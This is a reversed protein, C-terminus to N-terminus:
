YLPKVKKLLEFLHEYGVLLDKCIPDEKVASEFIRIHTAKIQEIYKNSCLHAIITRRYAFGGADHRLSYNNVKDKRWDTEWFDDGNMIGDIFRLDKNNEFFPIAFLSIFRKFRILFENVDEMSLLMMEIGIQNRREEIDDYIIPKSGKLITFVDENNPLPAIINVFNLANYLIKEVIDWRKTLWFIPQIYDWKNILGFYISNFGQEDIQYFREMKKSYKFGEIFPIKQIEEILYKQAKKKDFLNEELDM